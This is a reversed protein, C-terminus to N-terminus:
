FISSKWVTRQEEIELVSFSVLEQGSEVLSGVTDAGDKCVRVVQGTSCSLARIKNVKLYCLVQCM